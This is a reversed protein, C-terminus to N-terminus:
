WLELLQNLYADFPRHAALLYIVAAIALMPGFPVHAGFGVETEEGEPTEARLAASNKGGSVLHWVMAIAFWVTGVIAGGFVAFIAGKWGLFAGILGMFKVDGFGMAEKKLVEEALLGIWLIVGSGVLAGIIASFGAHISGIVYYPETSFGQMSPVAFGLAVGVVTGWITIGDPIIMHDLDIFTAAVLLGILIMGGVASAPPHVLWCTLFLLGTLTEVGAYRISYPSGCCRAKGRLVFWSLIPINDFWKIPQGCSCHSGPFVISKGAPVRYIVVNLFSGVMAGFVFAAAPFFWPMLEDMLTITPLM